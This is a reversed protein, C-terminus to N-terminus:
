FSAFFRLVGAFALMVVVVVWVVFYLVVAWAVVAFFFVCVNRNKPTRHTETRWRIQSNKYGKIKGTNKVRLYGEAGTKELRDQSWRHWM